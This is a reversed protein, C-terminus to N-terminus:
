SGGITWPQRMTPTLLANVQSDNAREAVPDWDFGRGVRMALNVLHCASATRHGAEAPARVPKGDAIGALWNERHMAYTDVKTQNLGDLVSAPEATLAGGHVEVFLKGQTGEFTVGRPGVNDGVMRLGNAYRNEFKFTIFADYFDGKPRQGTAEIHTPGTADLGLIYHALDIVHAGRDTIEGGGFASHFRWWFHCRKENYPVVPTPGLWFKYDLGAPPDSNPPPSTFNEVEQLHPDANPLNIRVLKIDGLKGASIIKKALKAGTSSREMCGTQLVVGATRVADAIARGEGISNALPKECYVHKGAKAAATAVLGHWHDPTSIVVADVDKRDVLERFDGTASATSVVKSASSLHRQDVDCLATTRVDPKTSFWNLHSTGMGGVGVFGLNLQNSPAAARAPSLSSLAGVAGAGVAIRKVFQRRTPETVRITEQM